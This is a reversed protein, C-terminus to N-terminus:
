IEGMQAPLITFGYDERVDPWRPIDGRVKLTWIIKNNAAEFSHMTDLPIVTAVSGNAITEPGETDAIPLNMFVNNDTYTNTGRQYRAQEKGELIITLKRMINSRGSMKWGLEFAGGLPVAKSSITLTPRPNYFALLRYIVGFITALGILVLVIMVAVLVRPAGGHRSANLFYRIFIGTGVNWIICFVIMQILKSLPSTKPELTVPGSAVTEYVSQEMGRAAFMSTERAPYASSVSETKPSLVIAIIGGLGVLAFFAPILTLYMLPTFERNLVAESPNDPDVYCHTKKGPPYRDVIAKKSAYGSSSGGMFNYKNSRRKEGEFEYEFLIDVSYTTSDDGRHSRVKSSIVTCPVKDWKKADQVKLYTRVFLFYTALSGGILFITFLILAVSKGSVKKGQQSISEPMVTGDPRKKKRKGHLTFYIGGAGIAVFILPFLAALATWPRKHELVAESPQSPNVYCVTRSQPKYRDILSQITGYDSSGSDNLRYQNSTYKKNKFEYEYRVAFRYEANGDSDRDEKIGSSLITCETKRWSRASISNIADKMILYTFLSGMVFFALFFLTLFLRGATGIPKNSRSQFRISIMKPINFSFDDLL